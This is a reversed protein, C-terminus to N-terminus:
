AAALDKDAAQAFFTGAMGAFSPFCMSALIGNADMDRVRQDVDYCGPRVEALTSPDFGWEHKPLTVVANIFTTLSAGAEWTWTQLGTTGDLVLRPARDRWRAPLHNEFVDPPEVIHDDVSVLILDNMEM